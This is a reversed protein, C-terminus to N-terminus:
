IENQDYVCQIHLHNVCRIVDSVCLMDFCVTTCQQWMNNKWEIINYPSLSINHQKFLVNERLLLINKIYYRSIVHRSLTPFLGKDCDM